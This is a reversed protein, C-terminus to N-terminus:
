LKFDSGNRTMIKKTKVDVKEIFETMFRIHEDNYYKLQSFYYSDALLEPNNAYIDIDVVTGEVTYKDDSIMIRSLNQRSQTFLMEEKKQRRIACLIGKAYETSEGISIIEGTVPRLDMM